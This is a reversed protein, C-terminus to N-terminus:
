WGTCGSPRCLAADPMLGRVVCGRGAGHGEVVLEFVGEGVEKGVVGRHLRHHAGGLRSARGDLRDAGVEDPMEAVAHAGVRGFLADPTQDAGQEFCLAEHRVLATRGGPGDEERAARDVPAVGVRDGGHEVAM